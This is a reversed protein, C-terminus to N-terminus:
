YISRREGPIKFTMMSIASLLVRQNHQAGQSGLWDILTYMRPIHRSFEWHQMGDSVTQENVTEKYLERSNGPQHIPFRLVVEKGPRVKDRQAPWLVPLRSVDQFNDSFARRMPSKTKHLERRFPYLKQVYM